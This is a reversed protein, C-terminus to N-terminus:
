LFYLTEKRRGALNGDMYLPVRHIVLPQVINNRFKRHNEIRRISFRRLRRRLIHPPNEIHPLYGGRHVNELFHPRGIEKGRVGTTRLLLVRIKEVNM